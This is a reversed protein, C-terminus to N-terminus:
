ITNNLPWPFGKALRSERRKKKYDRPGYPRFNSRMGSNDDSFNILCQKTKVGNGGRPTVDDADLVTSM